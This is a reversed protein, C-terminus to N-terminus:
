QEFFIPLLFTLSPHVDLVKECRSFCTNKNCTDQISSFDHSNNLSWTCSILLGLNISSHRRLIITTIIIITNTHLLMVVGLWNRLESVGSSRVNYKQLVLHRRRMVTPILEKTSILLCTPIHRGCIRDSRRSQLLFSRAQAFSVSRVASSYARILESVDSLSTSEKLVSMHVYECMAHM